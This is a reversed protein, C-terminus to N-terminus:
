AMVWDQKRRGRTGRRDAHGQQLYVMTTTAPSSRRERQIDRRDQHRIYRCTCHEVDCEQLPLRPADALLYRREGLESVAACAQSGPRVTVARFADASSPGQTKKSDLNLVINDAPEYRQYARVIRLVVALFVVMVVIALVLIDM